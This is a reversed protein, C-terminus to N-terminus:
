EKSLTTTWIRALTGEEIAVKGKAESESWLECRADTVVGRIGLGVNALSDM